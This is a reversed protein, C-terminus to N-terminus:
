SRKSMPQALAPSGRLQWRLLVYKYGLSQRPKSLWIRLPSVRTTQFSSRRPRDNGCRISVIVPKCSRPIPDDAAQFAADLSPYSAEGEWILGGKNLVQIMSSFGDIMGVEIWRLWPEDDM